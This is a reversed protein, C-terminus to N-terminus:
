AGGWWRSSLSATPLAARVQTGYISHCLGGLCAADSIGEPDKQQWQRMVMENGYQAFARM